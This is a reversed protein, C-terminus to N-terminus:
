SRQRSTRSVAFYARRGEEYMPAIVAHNREGGTLFQQVYKLIDLQMDKSAASVPCLDLVTCCEIAEHPVKKYFLPTIFILIAWSM